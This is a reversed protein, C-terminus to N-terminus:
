TTSAHVLQPPEPHVNDRLSLENCDVQAVLLFLSILLGIYIFLFLHYIFFNLYFVSNFHLSCVEGNLKVLGSGTLLRFILWRSYGNTNM